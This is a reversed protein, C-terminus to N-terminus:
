KRQTARAKSKWSGTHGESGRKKGMERWAATHTAAAQPSASTAAASARPRTHRRTSAPACPSATPASENSTAVPRSATPPVRPRRSPSGPAPKRRTSCRPGTRSTANTGEPPKSAAVGRPTKSISPAPRATSRAGAGPAAARSACRTYTNSLMTATAVRAPTKTDESATRQRRTERRQGTSGARVTASRAAASPISHQPTIPPCRQLAFRREPGLPRTSSRASRWVSGTPLSACPGTSTTKSTAPASTTVTSGAPKATRSGPDRRQRSTRGASGGPALACRRTAPSSHSQSAVSRPRSTASARSPGHRRAAGGTPVSAIPAM